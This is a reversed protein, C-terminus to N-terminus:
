KSPPFDKMMKGVVMDFFKEQEEAEREQIIATGVGRWSLEKEKSDVIDIVLSGEEYYSVDTRGGYPGWWPDYWGYGAAGWSTVQMREKTGGHIVVIFDADGSEILEFGKQELVKDVSSIVRKKILPHKSLDDDPQKGSWWQYTKYGSFDQERDFDTKVIVGPGCGILYLLVYFSLIFIFFNKM